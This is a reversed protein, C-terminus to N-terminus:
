EEATSDLRGAVARMFAGVAELVAEAEEETYKDAPLLSPARWSRRVRVLTEILDHHDGALGMIALIMQSWPLDTLKSTNLLHEVAVLGQRMVKMAHLVCATSRRLALCQVAEEIDYAVVPFQAEVLPGFPPEDDPRLQGTPLIIVRTLALEDRLRSILDDL